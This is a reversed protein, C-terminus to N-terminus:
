KAWCSSSTGSAGAATGRDKAQGSTPPPDNSGSAVAGDQPFLPRAAFSFSQGPTISNRKPEPLILINIARWPGDEQDSQEATVRVLTNECLSEAPKQKRRVKPVDEDYEIVADGVRVKRAMGHRSEVYLIGAEAKVGKRLVVRGQFVGVVGAFTVLSGLAIAFVVIALRRMVTIQSARSM